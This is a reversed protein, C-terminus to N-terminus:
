DVQQLEFVDCMFRGPYRVDVDCDRCHVGAERSM